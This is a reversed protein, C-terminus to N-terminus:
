TWRMKDIRDVAGHMGHLIRGFIISIMKCGNTDKQKTAVCGDHRLM